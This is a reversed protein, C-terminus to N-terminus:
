RPSSSHAGEVKAEDLFRHILVKEDTLDSWYFLRTCEDSVAPMRLSPSPESCNLEM